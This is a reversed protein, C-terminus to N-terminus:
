ITYEDKIKKLEEIREELIQRGKDTLMGRTVCSMCAHMASNKDINYDTFIDKQLVIVSIESILVAIIVPNVEERVIGDRKGKQLLETTNDFYKQKYIEVTNNYIEPYYKQVENFFNYKLQFYLKSTNELLSFISDIINESSKLIQEMDFVNDEFFYHLCAELLNAKDTFNEYITRKSMGASNAIDDMTISKCGNKSFLTAAQVILRNKTSYM